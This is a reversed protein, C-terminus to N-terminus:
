LGSTEPRQYAVLKQLVKLEIPLSYFRMRYRWGSAVRLLWRLFGRLRQDTVTPYRANLVAEFNRVRRRLGPVLWPVDINRRQCFDRWSPDTWEELTQPFRFGEKEAVAYLESDSPVPTYMYFIIEASSNVMKVERIFDLTQEADREPDPPNGLVFSFEPVIGYRKMTEAVLLTKDISSTGGKNMRALTEDAGSEAGMFVMRLGSDRLKEWTQEQYRALRDIRAEAWWGIKLPAIREALESVREEDIFFSNDHFEISDAGHDEVLTRVIEAVRRASQARWQGQALTAVSCFGCRYPCGYSSHHSITRRGMFTPRLYRGVEVRHYPFDPLAEPDPFEPPPNSVLEGSDGDVFALGPIEAPSRGEALALVLEVFPHEGCGRVVYDVFGSALCADHHQSPFYGGWVIRLDPHRRRLERCLPTAANLQPGPMVTVGLLEVDGSTILRDLHELSDEVLNGDVIEYERRGELLAGLALLSMPLIPKRTASSPPNYLLIM